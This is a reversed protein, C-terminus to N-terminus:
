KKRADRDLSALIAHYNINDTISDEHGGENFNNMYRDLKAMIMLLVAMRGWDDSTKLEIGAPCMAHLIPGFRQYSPGYEKGRTVLTDEARRLFELPSGNRLLDDPYENSDYKMEIEDLISPEAPLPEHLMAGVNSEKPDPKDIVAGVGDFNDEFDKRGHAM